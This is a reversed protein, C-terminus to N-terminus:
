RIKYFVFYRLSFLSETDIRASFFPQHLIYSAFSHMYGSQFHASLADPLPLSLLDDFYIYRIFTYKGLGLALPLFTFFLFDEIRTNENQLCSKTEQKASRKKYALTDACKIKMRRSQRLEKAAGRLAKGNPM